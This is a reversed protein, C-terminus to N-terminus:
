LLRKLDAALGDSKTGPAFVFRVSGNRDIFFVGAPHTVGYGTMGPMVEKVVVFGWAAKITDLQAVTPALGVFTSDFQRAYADALAPTDREPDVSVFVFRMRDPKVGLTARARAFDAITTPCVDPCHTYGFYVLVARGREGALDFARGRSDHLQLAPAAQPERILMGHVPAEKGCAAALVAAVLLLAPHTRHPSQRIMTNFTAPSMQM